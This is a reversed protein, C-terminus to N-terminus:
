IGIFTLGIISGVTNNFENHQTLAYIFGITPATVFAIGILTFILRKLHRM